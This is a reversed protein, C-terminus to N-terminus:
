SFLGLDNTIYLTKNIWQRYIFTETNGRNQFALTGRRNSPVGDCMAVVDVALSEYMETLLKM